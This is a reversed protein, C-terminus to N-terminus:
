RLFHQFAKLEIDPIDIPGDASKSLEGCLMAQFVPSRSVLVYRHASIEQGEIIFNIDCNVQNELMYRCLYIEILCTCTATYLYNNFCVAVSTVIVPNPNFDSTTMTIQRVSVQPSFDSCVFRNCELVGKNKHWDTSIQKQIGNDEKTLNQYEEEKDM